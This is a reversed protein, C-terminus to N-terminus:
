IQLQASPLTQLDLITGEWIQSLGDEVGRAEVDVGLIDSIEEATPFPDLVATEVLASPEVPPSPSQALLGGGLGITAVLASLCAVMVRRVRTADGRRM